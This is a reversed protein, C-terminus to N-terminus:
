TQGKTLRMNIGLRLKKEIMAKKGKKKAKRQSKRDTSKSNCCCINKFPSSPLSKFNRSLMCFAFFCNLPSWNPTIYVFASLIQTAFLPLLLLLAQWHSRPKVLHAWRPLGISILHAQWFTAIYSFNVELPPITNGCTSITPSSTLQDLNLIQSPNTTPNWCRHSPDQERLLHASCLPHYHRGERLAIPSWCHSSPCSQTPAISLSIASM